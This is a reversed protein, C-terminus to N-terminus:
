QQQVSSSVPILLPQAEYDDPVQQQTLKDQQESLKEPRFWVYHQLIFVVDFGISVLGLGFKIPNGATCVVCNCLPACCLGTLVLHPM